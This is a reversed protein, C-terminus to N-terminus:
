ENMKEQGAFHIGLRVYRNDALTSSAGTGLTVLQPQMEYLPILALCSPVM